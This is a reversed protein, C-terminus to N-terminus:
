RLPSPKPQRQKKWGESCQNILIVPTPQVYPAYGTLLGTDATSFRVESGVEYVVGVGYRIEAKDV